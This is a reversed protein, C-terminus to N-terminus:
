PEDASPLWLEQGAIIHNQDELKNIKCIEEMHAASHYHKLCIGYLTEGEKVIYSVADKPIQTEEQDAIDLGSADKSDDSISDHAPKEGLASGADAGLVAEAGAPAAEEGESATRAQGRKQAAQASGEGAEDAGQAPVSAQPLDAAEKQGHGEEEPQSPALGAEEGEEAQRIGAGAAAQSILGPDIVIEQTPSIGGAIREVQLEEGAEWGDLGEKGDKIDGAIGLWSQGEPVISAIVTEMEKMKGYNSYLVVGGAMVVVSLVGCAAGLMGSLSSRRRAEKRRGEMKQRFDQIVEDRSASEVRRAEKRTVMYDQMMQNREYYICYGRLKYFGEESAMYLAEEDELSSNLYMLQYKSQFYQSHQKWYNLPSLMGGPSTCLFWGLVTRKPFSQEMMQYAKKWASQTFEVQNGDKGVEPMEMAGDVFIYPMGEEERLEGLLLGVRLGQGSKPYLRKLYTNVYDEVYLRVVSDKEGIQRINKPLIPYPNYLEGMSEGWQAALM